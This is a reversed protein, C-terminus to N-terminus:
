YSYDTNRINNPEKLVRRIVHIPVNAKQMVRHASVFDKRRSMEIGRKTVMELISNNRKNMIRGRLM